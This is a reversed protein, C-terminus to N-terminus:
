LNFNNKRLKYIIKKWRSQMKTIGINYEKFKYKGNLRLGYIKEDIIKKLFKDSILIRGNAKFLKNQENESYLINGKSKLFYYNSDSFLFMFCKSSDLYIWDQDFYIFDLYFKENNRNYVMNLEIYGNETTIRNNNESVILAKTYSDKGKVLNIKNSLCFIQILCFIIIFPLRFIM